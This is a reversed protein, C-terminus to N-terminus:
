FDIILIILIVMSKTSYDTVKSKNSENSENSSYLAIPNMQVIPIAHLQIWKVIPFQISGYVECRLYIWVFYYILNHLWNLTGRWFHMSFRVPQPVQFYHFMYILFKVKIKEEVILQDLFTNFAWRGYYNDL